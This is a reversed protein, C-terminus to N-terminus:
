GIIEELQYGYAWHGDALDLVVREWDNVSVEDVEEGYKEHIGECLEMGIIKSKTRAGVGWSGRYVVKMGVKITNHGNTKM